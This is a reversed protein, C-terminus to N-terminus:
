KWSITSSRQWNKRRVNKGQKMMSEGGVPWLEETVEGTHTMGTPQLEELVVGTHTRELPYLREPVTKELM